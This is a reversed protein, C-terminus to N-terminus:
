GYFNASVAALAARSDSVRIFPVETHNEIPSETIVAVAGQQVADHVYRNGDVRTGHVAVFLDGHGVRRSDYALGTVSIEPDGRVELHELGQLLSELSKVM